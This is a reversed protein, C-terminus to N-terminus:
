SIKKTWKLGKYNNVRYVLDPLYHVAKGKFKQIEGTEVANLIIIDNITTNFLENHGQAYGTSQIFYDKINKIYKKSKSTKFDIIAPKGNYVGVVDLRGAYKYKNSYIVLESAWLEDLNDKLDNILGQVMQRVDLSENILKHSIDEDALYKELYNHVLNGRDTAKKSVRKAEEEGVRQKWKELWPSYSTKGLITTISPFEGIPTYYVRGNEGTNAIINKCISYDFITWSVNYVIM